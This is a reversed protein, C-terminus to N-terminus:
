GAKILEELTQFYRSHTRRLAKEDPAVLLVVEREVGREHLNLELQLRAHQAESMESDAFIRQSILTGAARDYDLLFIM